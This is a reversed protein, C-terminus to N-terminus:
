RDQVDEDDEITIQGTVKSLTYNTFNQDAEFGEGMIIEEDTTIKVFVESYITEKKEDWYLEETNLQEGKKNVVVVDGTAHWLRKNSYHIAYNAKLRSDEQGYADFFRVKIGKRFVMEPEELQPYNEALPAKLEMKTYSSDSYILELNEQVELPIKEEQTINKVESINNECSYLFLMPALAVISRKFIIKKFIM